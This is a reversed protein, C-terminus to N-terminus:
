PIDQIPGQMRGLGTDGVLPNDPSVPVTSGVSIPPLTISGDPTGTATTTTPAAVSPTTTQAVTGQALAISGAGGSMAMALSAGLAAPPIARLTNPKRM